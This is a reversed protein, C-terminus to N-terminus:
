PQWDLKLETGVTGLIIKEGDFKLTQNGVKVSDGERTVTPFSKKGITMVFWKRKLKKKVTGFEAGPGDDPPADDELM